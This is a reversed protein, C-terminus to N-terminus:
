TGDAEGDLIPRALMPVYRTLVAYPYNRGFRPPGLFARMRSVDFRQQEGGPKLEVTAERDLLRAIHRVLDSVPASVGSAVNIVTDRAGAQLLGQTLGVLDEVDVLDRQAESSVTVFGALVAKVLAPVLQHPHGGPGVVNSTRVILHSAGSTRIATEAEAQHRGYRTRPHLRDRERRRTRLTGYIPAGSFYVLPEHLARAVDAAELVAALERHYASEDTCSSDAVGRAFIVGPVTPDARALFASALLGRGQVIM